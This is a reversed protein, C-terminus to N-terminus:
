WPRYRDARKWCIARSNRCVFLRIEGAELARLLPRRFDAQESGGVVLGEGDNREVASVGGAARCDPGYM